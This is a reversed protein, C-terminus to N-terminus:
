VDASTRYPNRAYMVDLGGKTMGSAEYAVKACEDWAQEMAAREEKKGRELEDNTVIRVKRAYFQAEEDFDKRMKKIEAHASQPAFFICPLIDTGGFFYQRGYKNPTQAKWVLREAGDNASVFVAYCTPIPIIESM